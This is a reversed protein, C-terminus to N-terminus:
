KNLIMKRVENFNNSRLAYIYMGSTLAAGDFEVTHKGPEMRANVLTMVKEGLISFVDITVNSEFPLDFKIVTSPNFPNPYNQYLAFETPTANM